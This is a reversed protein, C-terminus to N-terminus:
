KPQIGYKEYMYDKIQASINLKDKGSLSMFDYKLSLKLYVVIPIMGAIIGTLPTNAFAGLIIFIAMIPISIITTLINRKIKNKLKFKHVYKREIRNSIKKRISIEYFLDPKIYSVTKSYDGGLLSADSLWYKNVGDM